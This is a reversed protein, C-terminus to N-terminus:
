TGTSACCSGRKSLHDVFAVVVFRHTKRGVVLLQQPTLTASGGRVFTEMLVLLSAFRLVRLLSMPENLLVHRFVPPKLLAVDLFVLVWDYEV